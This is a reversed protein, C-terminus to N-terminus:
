RAMLRCCIRDLKEISEMMVNIERFVHHIGNLVDDLFELLKGKRLRRGILVGCAGLDKLNNVLCLGVAFNLNLVVRIILVIIHYPLDAPRFDPLGKDQLFVEPRADSFV